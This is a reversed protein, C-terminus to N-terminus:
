LSKAGHIRVSGDAIVDCPISVALAAEQLAQSTPTWWTRSAALLLRPTRAAHCSAYALLRDPDVSSRGLFAFLDPLTTM